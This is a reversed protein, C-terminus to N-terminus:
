EEEWGAVRSRLATRLFEWFISLEIGFIFVRETSYIKSSFVMTISVIPFYKYVLVMEAVM